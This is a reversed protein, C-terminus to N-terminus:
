SLMRSRLKSLYEPTLGLFSAILYQPVRNVFEPYQERFQYFIEEKSYNFMLEVRRVAAGYGIEYVRRFYREMEPHHALLEERREYSIMLVESTEVAQTCYNTTSQRHFALFDTIWWNELAFQITKETGHDDIFYSHLCGKTVFFLKDCKSGAAQLVDKKGAQVCEFYSAIKEGTQADIGAFQHLHTQLTHHM